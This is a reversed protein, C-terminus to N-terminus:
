KLGYIFSFLSCICVYVWFSHDWIHTVVIYIHPFIIFVRTWSVKGGNRYGSNQGHFGHGRNSTFLAHIHMHTPIQDFIVHELYRRNIYIGPSMWIFIRSAQVNWCYWVAEAANQFLTECLTCSASSVMKGVLHKSSDYFIAYLKICSVRHDQIFVLFWVHRRHVGMYVGVCICDMLCAAVSAPFVQDEPARWRSDCLAM